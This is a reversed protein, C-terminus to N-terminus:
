SRWASKTFYLFYKMSKLPVGGYKNTTKEGHIVALIILGLFSMLMVLLFWWGSYGADHLRGISLVCVFIFAIAFIPISFVGLLSLLLILVFMSTLIATVFQVRGLRGIGIINERTELNNNEIGMKNNLPEAKKESVSANGIVSSGAIYATVDHPITKNFFKVISAAFMISLGVVPWFTGADWNPPTQLLEFVGLFLFCVGISFRSQRNYKKFLPLLLFSIGVVLLLSLSIDFIFQLM